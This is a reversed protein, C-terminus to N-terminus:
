GDMISREYELEGRVIEIVRDTDVSTRELMDVKKEIRNLTEDIHELRDKSKGLAWKVLVGLWMLIQILSGVAFMLAMIQLKDYDVYFNTVKGDVIPGPLKIIEESAFSISSILM